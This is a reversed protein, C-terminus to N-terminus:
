EEEDPNLEKAKKVSDEDDEELIEGRNFAAEAKDLAAQLEKASLMGENKWVIEGGVALAYSPTGRPVFDKISSRYAANLKVVLVKVPNAIQFRDVHPEARRCHECDTQFFFYLRSRFHATM